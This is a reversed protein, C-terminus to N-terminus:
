AGKIGYLAAVSGSIFSDGSFDLTISTIAATNRWLGSILTVKGSGNFDYGTFGRITKNKTTSAYDHIDFINVGPNTSSGLWGFSSLTTNAVGYASAASGNGELAHRSYNTATDSNFSITIIGGSSSQRGQIRLHLHQYTSPISTFTLSTQSSGSVSAISEFSGGGGAAGQAFTGVTFNQLTM